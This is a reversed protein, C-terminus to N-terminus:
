TGPGEVGASLKRPLIRVAVTQSTINGMGDPVHAAVWHHGAPLVATVSPGVGITGCSPSTWIIEDAKCNGFDPSFGHGIFSIPQGVEYRTDAKPSSIYVKRPKIPLKFSKTERVSTRFGASAVIQFRCRDGGPLSETNVLVRRERSAATVVRWRKGDHSFRVGYEIPIDREVHADWELRILNEAHSINVGTVEPPLGELTYAALVWEGRVLRIQRLDSTHPFSVRYARFPATDDQDADSECRAAYLFTEDSGYLEVKMDSQANIPEPPSRLIHFSSTISVTPNEGIPQTQCVLFSLHHYESQQPTESERIGIRGSSFSGSQLTRFINLYGYPSTWVPNCYSMYDFTQWPDLVTVARSDVGCEGISARPYGNYQPYNGDGPDATPLCGPAHSRGLAHGIEHAAGPGSNAFFLAAGGGGLGCVAGCGAEPPILGIYLDNTGSLARMSDLKSKLAYFNTTIALKDTWDLVECGDFNFDSVPYTRLLYDMAFLVDIPTAQADVPQDFYNLGAYHILVSHVNLTPAEVFNLTIFLTARNPSTEDNPDYIAIECLVQDQCVEWPIIFNLTHGSIARQITSAARTFIPGNRSQYIGGGSTTPNFAWIIGDVYSPIPLSPDNQAADIYVRLITPKRNILPVSNDPAFGSGQGPPYNFFQIAQTREVDLIRLNPGLCHQRRQQEIVNAIEQAIMAKAAPDVVHEELNQLVRLQAALEDCTM